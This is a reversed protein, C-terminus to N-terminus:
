DREDEKREFSYKVSSPKVTRGPEFFKRIKEPWNKYANESISFKTQIYDDPNEETAALMEYAQKLAGQDWEVKKTVVAKVKYKETETNATGCGYDKEKLQSGVEDSLFSDLDSEYDAKKNKLKKIESDIEVIEYILDDPTINRQKNAQTM